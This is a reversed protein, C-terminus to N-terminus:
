FANLTIGGALLTLWPSEGHSKREYMQLQDTKMTGLTMYSTANAVAKIQKANQNEFIKAGRKILWLSKHAM